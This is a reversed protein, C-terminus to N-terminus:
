LPFSHLIKNQKQRKIYGLSDQFDMYLGPQGQVRLGGAEM